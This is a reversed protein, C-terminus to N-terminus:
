SGVLPRGPFLKDLARAWYRSSRVYKVHPSILNRTPDFSVSAKKEGWEYFDFDVPYQKVLAPIYYQEVGWRYVLTQRCTGPSTGPELEKVQFHKRALLDKLLGHMKPDAIKPRVLCLSDDATRETGNVRVVSCGSLLLISSLSLAALAAATHFTRPASM